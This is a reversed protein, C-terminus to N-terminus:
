VNDVINEHIKKHNTLDPKYHYKEDCKDCKWRKINSHIRKHYALAAKNIHLEECKNCKYCREPHEVKLHEDIGVYGDGENEWGIYRLHDENCVKCRYTKPNGSNYRDSVVYLSM